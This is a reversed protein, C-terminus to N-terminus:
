AEGVGYLLFFFGLCVSRKTDWFLFSRFIAAVVLNNMSNLFDWEASSKKVISYCQILIFDKIGEKLLIELYLLRM